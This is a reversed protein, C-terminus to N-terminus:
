APCARCSALCRPTSPVAALTATRLLALLADFESGLSNTLQFSGVASGLLRSGLRPPRFHFADWRTASAAPRHQYNITSLQSSLASLQSFLSVFQLDLSRSGCCTAFPVSDKGRQLSHDAVALVNLSSCCM